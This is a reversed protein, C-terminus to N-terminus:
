IYGVLYMATFTLLFFAFWHMFIAVLKSQGKSFGDTCYDTKLSRLLVVGLMCVDGLEGVYDRLMDSNLFM